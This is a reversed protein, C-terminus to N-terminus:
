TAGLQMRLIKGDGEDKDPQVGSEWPSWTAVFEAPNGQYHGPKLGGWECM